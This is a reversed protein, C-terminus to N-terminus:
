QKVEIMKNESGNSAMMSFDIILQVARTWRHFFFFLTMIYNTETVRYTNKIMNFMIQAPLSEAWASKQNATTKVIKKLVENLLVNVHFRTESIWNM